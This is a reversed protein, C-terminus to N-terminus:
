DNENEGKLQKLEKELLKIKKAMEDLQRVRVMNKRWERNEMLPAGSSYAGAKNLSKSVQSGATIHVRDAIEIHGLITARGGATCYDGVRSSGAVGAYAAMASHEGIEVNHALHCLNDLKVGNGIITDNLAGRDITCNAGCEFDDGIVVGGLQPIKVWLGNDSAFGFGDSGITTGSHVIARKGIQVGHTITVNPYIKAAEGLVSGHGVYSGAGLEVNDGIVAQAAVVANPGIHASESVTASEHIVATPHIGQALSPTTDLLQAVRAFGLYPNSMVLANGDYDEALEASMIVASAKTDTLYTRYKPNSLFTIHGSVSDQITNVSFVRCAADGKVEAGILAAIQELTYGQNDIM